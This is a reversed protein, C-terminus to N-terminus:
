KVQAGVSIIGVWCAVQASVKGKPVWKAYKISQDSLRNFHRASNCSKNTLSWTKLEVSCSAAEAPAATVVQVGTLATVALATAGAFAAIKTTITM